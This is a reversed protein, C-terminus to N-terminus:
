WKVWRNNMSGIMDQPLFPLFHFSPVVQKSPVINSVILINQLFIDKKNITM